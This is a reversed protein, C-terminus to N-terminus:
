SNSDPAQVGQLGAVLYKINSCIRHPASKWFHCSIASVM